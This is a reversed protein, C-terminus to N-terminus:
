IDISARSLRADIHHTASAVRVILEGSGTERGVSRHTALADQAHFSELGHGRGKRDFYESSALRPRARRRRSRRL